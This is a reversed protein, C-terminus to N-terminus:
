DYNLIIKQNVGKIKKCIKKIYFTKYINYYIIIICKM